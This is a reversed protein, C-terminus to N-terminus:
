CEVLIELILMKIGQNINSIENSKKGPEKQISAKMNKRLLM